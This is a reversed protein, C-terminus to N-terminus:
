KGWPGDATLLGRRLTDAVHLTPVLPALRQAAELTLAGGDQQSLWGARLFAELDPSPAARAFDPPKPLTDLGKINILIKEGAADEVLIIGAGKGIRAAPLTVERILSTQEVSNGSSMAFITRFPARGGRWSLWLSREGTSLRQPEAASLNTSLTSIEAQRSSLTSATTGSTTMRVTIRLVSDYFRGIPGLVPSKPVTARCLEQESKCIALSAGRQSITVTADRDAVIIEDGEAVLEGEGVFREVGASKLIVRLASQKNPQPVVSVIIGVPDKAHTANVLTGGLYVSGLLVVFLITFLFPNTRCM